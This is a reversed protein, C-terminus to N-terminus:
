PAIVDFDSKNSHYRVIRGDVVDHELKFVDPELVADPYVCQVHGLAKQYADYSFDVVRDALALAVVKGEAEDKLKKVNELESQVDELQAQLEEVRRVCADRDACAEEQDKQHRRVSANARHLLAHADHLEDRLQKRELLLNDVEKRGACPFFSFLILEFVCLNLFM